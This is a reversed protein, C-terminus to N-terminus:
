NDGTAIGAWADDPNLLMAMAGSPLRKATRIGASCGKPFRTVNTIFKKSSTRRRVAARFHGALEAPPGGIKVTLEWHLKPHPSVGRVQRIVGRASKRQM